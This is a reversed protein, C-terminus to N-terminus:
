KRESVKLYVAGRQVAWQSLTLTSDTYKKQFTAFRERVQTATFNGRILYKAGDITIYRKM